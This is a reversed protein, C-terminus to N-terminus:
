LGALEAARLRWNQSLAVLKSLEALEPKSGAAKHGGGVLMKFTREVTWRHTAEFVQEIRDMRSAEGEEIVRFYFGCRGTRIVAGSLGHVGFHHGIKWCPQRAQAIEVLAKGLRFRDGIKVNGETLGSASINEGFGGPAELLPHPAFQECAFFAQWQPYHEAPYFHVAKDFGGHVTPDGVKDGDFGIKRLMVPHDVTDRAIASMTGDARFPKPLGILLAEIQAIIMAVCYWRLRQMGM